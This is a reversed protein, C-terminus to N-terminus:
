SLGRLLIPSHPQVEACAAEQRQPQTAFRCPDEGAQADERLEATGGQKRKGLESEKNSHSLAKRRM